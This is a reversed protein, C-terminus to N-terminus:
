LVVAVALGALALFFIKPAKSFFGFAMGLGSMVIMPWLALNAAAVLSKSTDAKSQIYAEEVQRESEVAALEKQREYREIIKDAVSLEPPGFLGLPGTQCGAVVFGAALVALWISARSTTHSRTPEM